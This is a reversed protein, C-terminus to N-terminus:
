GKAHVRMIISAGRNGGCFQGDHGARVAYFAAQETIALAGAVHIQDREASFGYSSPTCGPQIKGVDICDALAHFFAILKRDM